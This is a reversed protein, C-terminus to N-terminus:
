YGNKDIKAVAAKSTGQVLAGFEHIMLPALRSIASDRRPIRAVNCAFEHLCQLHLVHSVRALLSQEKISNFLQM